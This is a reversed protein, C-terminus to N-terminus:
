PQGVNFPGVVVDDVTSDGCFFTATAKVKDIVDGSKVKQWDWRGMDRWGFSVLPTEPHEATINTRRWVGGEHVFGITNGVVYHCSKLSLADLDAYVHDADAGWDKPQWVVVPPTVWDFLLASGGIVLGAVNIISMVRWGM